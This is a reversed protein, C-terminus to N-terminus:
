LLAQYFFLLQHHYSLFLYAIDTCLHAHKFFYQGAQEKRTTKKKVPLGAKEREFDLRAQELELRARQLDLMMDIKENMQASRKDLRDTAKDLAGEILTVVPKRGLYTYM